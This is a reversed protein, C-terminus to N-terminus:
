LQRERITVKAAMRFRVITESPVNAPKPRTAAVTGAGAIGGVGAGIAAGAGGGAVAGIIAGLAAGGGIKAAEGSRSSDGRRTWPDTSIAIKQGDSTFLTSLELELSSTGSFRGAKQVDVIRGTVRAGREAIVLGDVVLPESLSANFTDGATSHESSVTEDLRVPITM